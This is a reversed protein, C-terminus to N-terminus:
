KKEHKLKDETIDLAFKVVKVVRDPFLLFCIFFLACFFCFFVFLGSHFIPTYTAQLWVVRGGKGIRKFEGKKQKKKKKLFVWWFNVFCCLDDFGQGFGSGEKMSKWFEAYEPKAADAVFL